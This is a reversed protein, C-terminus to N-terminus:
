NRQCGTGRRQLFVTKTLFKWRFRKEKNNLDTYIVYLREIRIVFLASQRKGPYTEGWDEEWDGQGKWSGSDKDTLGDKKYGQDNFTPKAPSPEEAVYAICTEDFNWSIGEFRHWLVHSSM